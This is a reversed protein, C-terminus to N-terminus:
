RSIVCAKSVELGVWVVVGGGVPGYKTFLAMLQPGLM